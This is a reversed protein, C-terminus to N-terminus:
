AAGGKGMNALLQAALDTNEVPADLQLAAEYKAQLEAVQKELAAIKKDRQGLLTGAQLLSVALKRSSDAYGRKREIMAKFAGAGRKELEADSLGECAQLALNQRTTTTTM